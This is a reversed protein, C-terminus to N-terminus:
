KSYEKVVSGDIKDYYIIDFRGIEIIYDNDSVTIEFISDAVDNISINHEKCLEILKDIYEHTEESDFIYNDDADFMIFVDTRDRDFWQKTNIGYSTGDIFYLMYNPKTDYTIYEENYRTYVEWATDKVLYCKEVIYTTDATQIVVYDTNEKILSTKDVNFVIPNIYKKTIKM